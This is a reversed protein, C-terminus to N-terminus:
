YSQLKQYSYGQQWNFFRKAALGALLIANTVLVVSTLIYLGKAPANQSKEPYVQAASDSRDVSSHDSKLRLPGVMAEGKWKYSSIERKQRTICGNTCRSNPDNSDCILVECHLYVTPHSRLFKFSSFRFRGYHELVPYAVYTNDKACGSRVLDYNPSGFNPNPSAICTDVFVLLNADSSHLTVQAYLTQNLDVYYPSDLIPKSFLDSEYFSMSLNYRGLASTNQTVDTETVYMVEVTSNNEMICKVVIEVRKQRTIVVGAPSATITNIYSITHNQTEKITGCSNFPFSFMVPNSASPRCTPDNLVLDNDNYGLSDLYSKSLIVTITDSSCRLSTNPQTTPIPISTYHASFGRYSNAYDTSLVVTMFNSSSEFTPKALGCVQKILGTNTMVGDYIAVFDFRCNEDMEVFIESFTLNIKSNAETQIHWVCYTFPPHPSPYNPSTFSGEPSQLRGGCNEVSDPSIFYYFVFVARKFATSDTSLQFTLANSSSEFVPVSQHSNCIQGLFSSNTSSGDYVIINERDCISSPNFQFYSFIIRINQDVDKEIYWTCTENANVEIPLAKYPESLIGGCETNGQSEVLNNVALTWGFFLVLLHSQQFVSM